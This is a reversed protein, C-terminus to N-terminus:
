FWGAMKKKTFEELWTYPSAIVLYGGINIRKGIDILFRDPKLRDILNVAIVLDYDKFRSKMNCADQQLFNIKCNLQNIGMQKLTREQFTSLEGEEKREYRLRGLQQM